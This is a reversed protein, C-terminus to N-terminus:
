TQRFRVIRSASLSGLFALVPSGLVSVDIRELVDIELFSSVGLIWLGHLVLLIFSTRIGSKLVGNIRDSGVARMIGGFLLTLVPVLLFFAVYYEGHTNMDQVAQRITYPGDNEIKILKPQGPSPQPTSNEVALNELSETQSEQDEKEVIEVIAKPTEEHLIREGIMIKDGDVKIEIAPPEVVPSPTKSSAGKGSLQQYLGGSLNRLEELTCNYLEPMSRSTEQKSSLAIIRVMAVCAGKEYWLEGFLVHDVGAASGIEVWADDKTGYQNNKVIARNVAKSGAGDTVIKFQKDRNLHWVLGGSLIKGHGRVKEHREIFEGVALSKFPVAWVVSCLCTFATVFAFIRSGAM